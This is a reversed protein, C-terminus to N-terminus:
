LSVGQLPVWQCLEWLHCGTSFSFRSRNTELCTYPRWNRLKSTLYTIVRSHFEKDVNEYSAQRFTFKSWKEKNNHHKLALDTHIYTHTQALVESRLPIRSLPLMQSAMKSRQEPSYWQVCVWWHQLRDTGKDARRQVLFRYTNRLYLDALM